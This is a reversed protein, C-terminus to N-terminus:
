HCWSLVFWSSRFLYIFIIWCKYDGGGGYTYRLAVSSKLCLLENFSKLCTGILFGIRGHSVSDDCFCMTGLYGEM